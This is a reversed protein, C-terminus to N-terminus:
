VLEAGVLLESVRTERGESGMAAWKWSATAQSKFAGGTSGSRDVETGGRTGVEHRSQRTVTRGADVAASSGVGRWGTASHDKQIRIGPMDGDPMYGKHGTASTM